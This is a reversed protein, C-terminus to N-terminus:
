EEEYQSNLRIVVRVVGFQSIAAVSSTVYEGSVLGEFSEDGFLAQEIDSHLKLAERFTDQEKQIYGFIEINEVVEFGTRRYPVSTGEISSIFVSPFKNCEDISKYGLQVQDDGFTFNYYNSESITRLQKQVAEVINLLRNRTTRSM